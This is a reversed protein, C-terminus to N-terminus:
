ELKRLKSRTTADFSSVAKFHAECEMYGKGGPRLTRETSLPLVKLFYGIFLSYLRLRRWLTFSPHCLTGEEYFELAGGCCAADYMYIKFRGIGIRKFCWRYVDEDDDFAIWDPFEEDKFQSHWVGKMELIDGDDGKGDYIHFDYSDEGVSLVIKNAESASCKLSDFTTGSWVYETGLTLMQKKQYQLFLTM